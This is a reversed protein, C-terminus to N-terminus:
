NNKEEKKEGNVYDNLLDDLADEIVERVQKGELAAHARLKRWLSEDLYINKRVKGKQIESQAKKKQYLEIEKMALEREEKEPLMRSFSRGDTYYYDEEVQSYFGGDKNISSMQVLDTIKVKNEM